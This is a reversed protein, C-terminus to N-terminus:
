LLRLISNVNVTILDGRSMDKDCVEVVVLVIQAVQEKGIWGPLPLSSLLLLFAM